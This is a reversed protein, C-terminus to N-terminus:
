WKISAIFVQGVSPAVYGFGRVLKSVLGYFGRLLIM